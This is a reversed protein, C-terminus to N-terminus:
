VVKLEGFVFAPPYLKARKADILEKPGAEV